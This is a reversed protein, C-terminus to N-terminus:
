VDVGKAREIGIDKIAQAHKTAAPPLLLARLEVIVAHSQPATTAQSVARIKIGFRPPKGAPNPTGTAIATLTNTSIYPVFTFAKESAGPATYPYAAKKVANRAPVSAKCDALRPFGSIKVAKDPIAPETSPKTASLTEADSPM